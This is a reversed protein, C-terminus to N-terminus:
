IRTQSDGPGVSTGADGRTGSGFNPYGSPNAVAPLKLVSAPPQFQQKSPGTSSTTVSFVPKNSGPAVSGTLSARMKANAESSDRSFNSLAKSSNGFNFNAGQALARLADPDGQSAATFLADNPPALINNDDPREDTRVVDTGGSIAYKERWTNDQYDRDFRQTLYKRLVDFFGGPGELVFNDGQATTVNGAAPADTALDATVGLSQVSQLAVEIQADPSGVRAAPPTTPASPVASGETVSIGDV